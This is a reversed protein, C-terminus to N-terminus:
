KVFFWSRYQDRPLQHPLGVVFFPLGRRYSKNYADLAEVVHSYHQNKFQFYDHGSVIGGPHVKKTWEVIDKVVYELRHNGDIYVFDLSNDTFKVVANESFEKILTARYPRLREVSENYFNDMQQQTIQTHYGLNDDYIIWPDICYLHLKPNTKCLSEAYIGQETGIEAGTKFDLEAFLEALNRRRMNPIEIPSPHNMDLRYKNVIYDLTNM